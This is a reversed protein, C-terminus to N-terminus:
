DALKEKIKRDAKAFGEATKDAAKKFKQEVKEPVRKEELKKATKKFGEEIKKGIKKAADGVKESFSSDGGGQPEAACAVKSHAVVATLACFCVAALLRRMFIYRKEEQSYDLLPFDYVWVPKWASKDILNLEEGLLLRLRGLVDHVVAPTDAGFLVLDGPQAEPLAHAFAKADLFKAIVSDM